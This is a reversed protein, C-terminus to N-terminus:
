FGAGLIEKNKERVFVYFHLARCNVVASTFPWVKYRIKRIKMALGNRYIQRVHLYTPTFITVFM